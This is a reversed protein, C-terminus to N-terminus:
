GLRLAGGTDIGLSGSAEPLTGLEDTQELDGSGSDLLRVILALEFSPGSQLAEPRPLHTELVTSAFDNM